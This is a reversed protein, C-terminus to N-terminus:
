FFVPIYIKTIQTYAFIIKATVHFVCGVLFCGLLSFNMWNLMEARQFIILVHFFLGCISFLSFRLNYGIFSKLGSLYTKCGQNYPWLHLETTFYKGQM